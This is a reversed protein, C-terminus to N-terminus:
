AYFSLKWNCLFILYFVPCYKSACTPPTRSWIGCTKCYYFVPCYKSECTPPTHSLIGCTKCYYFYLAISVKVLQLHVLGYEVHRANNSKMYSVKMIISMINDFCLKVFFLYCRQVIYECLVITPTM